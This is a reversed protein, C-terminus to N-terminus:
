CKISRKILEKLKVIKGNKRNEITTVKVIDDDKTVNYPKIIEVIGKKEYEKADKFLLQLIAM